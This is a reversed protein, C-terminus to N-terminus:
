RAGPGATQGSGEANGLDRVPSKASGVDQKTGDYERLRRKLQGNLHMVEALERPYRNWMRNREALEARSICELNDRECNARNRDKFVIVHGSPIPGYHQEWVHRQLLPWVRTNGFGTPEAGHLAERVKIRLYGETDPLVTGVPRRNRAAVGRREGKKFQTERMRGPAWGPRRLGKNAPVHGPQFQTGICQPRTQGKRLRGSEDSEWFAPSKRLGLGYAANYVSYAPRGLNAALKRTSQVPYLTRLRTLESETWPRGNM